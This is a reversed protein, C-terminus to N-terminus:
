SECIYGGLLRVMERMAKGRHSIENKEETSLQALTLGHKPLLFVPDYGFGNSGMNEWAIRGELAAKATLMRGGPLACAAVCVFRATRKEDPVTKMLELIHANRIAYPTDAGLYLASDVGPLGDLADIELGSDDSLVYFDASGMHPALFLATETAKQVANKEFTDGDEGATFRLGLDALSRLEVPNAGSAFLAGIERAKNANNTALILVV